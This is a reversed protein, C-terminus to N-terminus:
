SAQPVQVKRLYAIFEKLDICGSSDDDMDAFARVFADRTGDEQRIHEPLGLLDHLERALDQDDNISKVFETRSIEGDGNRDIVNFLEQWRNQESSVMKAEGQEPQQSRSGVKEIEEIPKPAKVIQQQTSEADGSFLLDNLGWKAEAAALAAKSKEEEEEFAKKQEANESLKDKIREYIPTGLKSHRPPLPNGGIQLNTLSHNEEIADVLAILGDYGIRNAGLRLVRLSENEKLAEALAVAGTNGVNNSSLDLETCSGNEKLAKAIAVVGANSNIFNRLNYSELSKTRMTDVVMLVNWASDPKLRVM